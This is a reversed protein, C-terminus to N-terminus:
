TMYILYDETYRIRPRAYNPEKLYDVPKSIGTYNSDQIKNLIRVPKFKIGKSTRLEIWGGCDIAQIVKKPAILKSEVIFLLFFIIIMFNIIFLYDIVKIFRLCIFFNM